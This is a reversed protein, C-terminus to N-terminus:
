RYYVDGTGSTDVDTLFVGILPDATSFLTTLNGKSNDGTVGSGTVGSGTVGSGSGPGVGSTSSSGSSTSGQTM